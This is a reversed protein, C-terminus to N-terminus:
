RLHSLMVLSVSGQGLRDQDVVVMDVIPGIGTFTDM